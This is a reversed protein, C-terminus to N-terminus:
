KEQRVGETYTALVNGDRYHTGEWLKDNKWEGVMKYKTGFVFWGGWTESGQGHRKGCQCEGEYYSTRNVACNPLLDASRDCFMEALSESTPITYDSPCDANNITGDPMTTDCFIAKSINEAKALTAGKFNAGTLNAGSLNAGFMAARSLNAATLNAKALNTEVLTTDSLDAMVLTAGALLNSKRFNKGSLNAATLNVGSSSGTLSAFGFYCGICSNTRTLRDVHVSRLSSLPDEHWNVTTMLAIFLALVTVLTSVVVLLARLWGGTVKHQIRGIKKWLYISAILVFAIVVVAFVFYKWDESTM